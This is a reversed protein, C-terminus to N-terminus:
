GALADLEAEVRDRIRALTGAGFDFELGAAAFLEPLPRSGGLSLAKKYADLAVDAGEDLSRIWLQYAGLQAIGYEIYYFPVAFPHPQAHWVSDRADGTTDDWAVKSGRLGFRDILSRWHATRETAAHEPNDYVWHQFADVTAIWPLLKMGHDALQVRTARAADAEDDYFAGLHPLTLLEMSMSAVEAFELPANRDALLPMGTCLMSHFAHGAEHIMTEVDRHVGAANMFIFPKGTQELMYQYGGPAKGARSDLDLFAGTAVGSTNAGDGLTGFM